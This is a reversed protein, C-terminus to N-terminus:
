GGMERYVSGGMESNRLTMKTCSLINKSTDVVGAVWIYENDVVEVLFSMLKVDDSFVECIRTGKIIM